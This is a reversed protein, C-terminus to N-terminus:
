AILEPEIVALDSIVERLKISDHKGLAALM